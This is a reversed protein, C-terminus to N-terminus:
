VENTCLLSVPFLSCYIFFEFTQEITPIPNPINDKINLITKNEPYVKGNASLPSRKTNPNANDTIPKFSLGFDFCAM